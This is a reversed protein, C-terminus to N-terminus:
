PLNLRASLLKGITSKGAGAPGILIIPEDPPGESAVLQAIEDCSEQATRGETYVTYTALDQNSHHKVFHENMDMGFLNWYRERLIRYSEGPDPSPLLLFVHPQARLADAVSHFLRDDEQVSLTAGIEIIHGPHDALCEGVAHAEFPKMARYLADFGSANLLADAEAQDYGAQGYYRSCLTWDEGPNLTCQPLGLSVALLHRLTTKGSLYPGILVISSHM